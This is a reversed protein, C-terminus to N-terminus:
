PLGWAMYNCRNGRRDAPADEPIVADTYRRFTQADRSVMLTPETQQTKPLFRTPFSVLIHPAGPDNQIANAYLQETAGVDPYDLWMPDTWTFFDDSTGSMIDRVVRFARHYERHKGLHSDWFALNQSDFAGRTIVPKDSMRTWLIGDASKLPLLGGNVATSLSILLLATIGFQTGIPIDHGYTVLSGSAGALRQRPGPGRM